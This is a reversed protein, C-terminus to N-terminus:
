FTPLRWCGVEGWPYVFMANQGKEPGVTGGSREREEGMEAM